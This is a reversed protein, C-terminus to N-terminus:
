TQTHTNRGPSSGRCADRSGGCHAALTTLGAGSRLVWRMVSWIFQVVRTTIRYPAPVCVCPCVCAWEFTCVNVWVCVRVCVSPYVQGRVCISLCVLVCVCVHMCVCVCVCVHWLKNKLTLYTVDTEFVVCEGGESGNFFLNKQMIDNILLQNSNGALLSVADGSEM